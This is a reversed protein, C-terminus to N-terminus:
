WRRCCGSWTDVRNRRDRRLAPPTSWVSIIKSILLKILRRAANCSTARRKKQKMGDRFQLRKAPRCMMQVTKFNFKLVTCLHTKKEKYFTKKSNTFFFHQKHFFHLKASPNRCYFDRLTISKRATSSRFIKLGLHLYTYNNVHLAHVTQQM